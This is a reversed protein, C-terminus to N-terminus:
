AKQAKAGAKTEGSQRLWTYAMLGCGVLVMPVSLEQSRTLGLFNLDLDFDRVYEVLTRAIGYGAIFAGTMFGPRAWVAPIRYLLGLIILLLLGEGVAEYLQSPHRYVDNQSFRVGIWAGEGAERGVLERNVFNAIRGLFLGIPAVLAIYDSFRMLSFGRAKRLWFIVTALCVGLFGGHFSMGAIAIVRSGDPQTHIPWFVQQAQDWFTGMGWGFIFNGLRGGVIVGLLAYIIYDDIDKAKLTFGDAEVRWRVIMWAAILGGMYALAYWTLQFPGISFLVPDIWSPYEFRM